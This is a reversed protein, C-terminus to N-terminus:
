SKSIFYVSAVAFCIGIFTNFTMPKNGFFIYFLALMLVYKIEYVGAVMLSQKRTILYWCPSTVGSALFVTIAWKYNSLWSFDDRVSNEFLLSGVFFPIYAACAILGVTFFSFNKVLREYALCGIATAAGLSLGLLQSKVQPIVLILLGICPTIM